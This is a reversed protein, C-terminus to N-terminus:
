IKEYLSANLGSVDIQKKPRGRPFLKLKVGSRRLKAARMGAGAGTMNCREAAEQRNSSNEWIRVFETDSIIKM